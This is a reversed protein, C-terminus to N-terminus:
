DISKECLVSIGSKQPEDAKNQWKFDYSRRIVLFDLSDGTEPMGIYWNRYTMETGDNYRWSGDSTRNGQLYARKVDKRIFDEIILQKRESDIRVLNGGDEACLRVSDYISYYGRPYYWYCIRLERVYMQSDSTPCEVHGPEYITWDSGGTYSTGLVTRTLMVCFHDTTRLALASCEPNRQCSRACLLENNPPFSGISTHVNILNRGSQRFYLSSISCVPYITVSTIFIVLLIKRGVQRRM